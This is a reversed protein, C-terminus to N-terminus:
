MGALARIRYMEELALVALGAADYIHEHKGKAHEAMLPALGEVHQLIAYGVRNKDGAAKGLFRRKLDSPLFQAPMIGHKWGVCQAMQAALGVKWANGGVMGPFPRWGEVGIAKPPIRTLLDDLEDWFERIRRQDDSAVRLQQLSKKDAKESDLVKVVRATVKGTTEHELIAVGLHAFGPDIGMVLVPERPLPLNNPLM